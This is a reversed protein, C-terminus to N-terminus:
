AASWFLDTHVSASRHRLIGRSELDFSRTLAAGAQTMEHWLHKQRLVEHEQM